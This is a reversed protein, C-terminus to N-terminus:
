ARALQQDNPRREIKESRLRRKNGAGLFGIRGNCGALRQMGIIRRANM